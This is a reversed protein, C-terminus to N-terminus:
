QNLNLQTKRQKLVLGVIPIIMLWGGSIPMIFLMLAIILSLMPIIYPPFLINQKEIWHVCYGFFMLIIGFFLFWYVGEREIQQNVTNFLGERIWQSVIDRFFVLGLGTHIVGIIIISKGIWNKM